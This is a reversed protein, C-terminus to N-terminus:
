SVKEQYKFCDLWMDKKVIESKSEESKFLGNVNVSREQSSVDGEDEKSELDVIISRDGYGVM